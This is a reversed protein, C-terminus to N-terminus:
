KSHKFNTILKLFRFAISDDFIYPFDDTDEREVDRLFRQCAWKEKVCHGHESNIVQLSYGVLMEKLSSM